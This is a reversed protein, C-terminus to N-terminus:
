QSPPQRPQCCPGAPVAETVMDAHVPLATRGDAYSLARVEFGVSLHQAGAQATLLAVGDPGSLGEAGQDFAGTFWGSVFVNPAPRGQGDTVVVRAEALHVGNVISSNLSPIATFQRLTLAEPRQARDPDQQALSAAGNQAAAVVPAQNPPPLPAEQMCASALLVFALSLSRTNM